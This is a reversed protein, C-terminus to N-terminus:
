LLLWQSCIFSATKLLCNNCLPQLTTAVSLNNCLPQLSTTTASLNNCLFQLSSQHNNCLPQQLSTTILHNNCLSQQLSTTLIHNNCLSQQLSTTLLHNNCVSQQLSTTPLHSNCFSQQLSTTLLNITNPNLSVDVRSPWKTDDGLSLSFLSLLSLLPSSLSPCPLFLFLFSHFHLFLLFLFMGGRGKGVVLIAPRAWSYALILQVGWHHLICLVKAGGSWWSYPPLQQLSTVAFLNYPLPQQLSTKLYHNNYLATERYCGRKRNPFWPGTTWLTTLKVLENLTMKNVTKASEICLIRFIKVSFIHTAKVSVFAVWMKKLLFNWCIQTDSSTFKLSDNVLLMTLKSCSPGSFYSNYTPLQQPSTIM